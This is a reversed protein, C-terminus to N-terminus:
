ARGLDRLAALVADADPELIEGALRGDALLLVRDAVAAAGPDHTVMVVTQGWEDVARRLLDLVEAGTTSDLAGTPEDAFIVEPQTVLARALAVRQQQGGSLEGPRHDLRDQLGLAQVVIQEWGPDAGRGALDLPLRFNQQATLTPLLNFAQFVFGVSERRLTTLRKDSLSTLEHEGLHVRGSTPTDLGALLHMLTSKGSGSPGMIATFRGQEIGVSVDDLATVATEGKGYTKTLDLASAALTMGPKQASSAAGQPSTTITM